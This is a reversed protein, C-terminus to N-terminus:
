KNEELGNVIRKIGDKILVSGFNILIGLRLDTLRLYTLLQKKHVPLLNEVSKLEIIVKKEVLVDIRYLSSFKKGEFILPLDVETEIFLGRERLKYVMLEQYVSELLGPGLASHLHFAVDVVTNAIQNENM